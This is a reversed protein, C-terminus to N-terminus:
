IDGMIRGQNAEYKSDDNDEIQVMFIAGGDRRSEHASLGTHGREKLGIGM